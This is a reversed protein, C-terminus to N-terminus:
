CTFGGRLQEYDPLFRVYIIYQIEKVTELILLFDQINEFILKLILVKCKKKKKKHKSSNKAVYNAPKFAFVPLATFVLM